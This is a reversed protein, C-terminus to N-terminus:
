RYLKVDAKLQCANTEDTDAFQVVINGDDIVASLKLGGEATDGLADTESFVDSFSVATGNSAVRLTGVRVKDSDAEKISYALELGVYTSASFSLGTIDAASSTDEDLTINHFYREEVTSGSVGRLVAPTNLELSTSMDVSLSTGSLSSVGALVGTDSITVGSGQLLKGSTSDFRPLENDVSSAPGVVDGGPIADIAADLKEIAELVSDTASVPGVFDGGTLVTDRVRAETFYLSDGEAIDDTDLVVAGTQGNVSAVPASPVPAAVWEGDDYTLVRGDAADSVDVDDLNGLDLVVAGTQGNVSDVQDSHDWKEWVTGNNVVSDGIDFSIDGAGFDVTGAATVRYLNGAAGVDTNLLEPSNDSADWTGSYVIPDPLAAITDDVYKKTAADQEASPDVVNTLKRTNLSVDTGSWDLKVTSSTQLRQSILDVRGTFAGPALVAESFMTVSRVAQWQKGEAGLSVTNDDAPVINANVATSELNSLAKNAGASAVIDAALEDIAEQVNEADLESEENDYGVNEADIYPAQATWEGSEYVLFNGNSPEAPKEIYDDLDSADAKLALADFVADQSPAVNTVGDTISDAVAATRARTETFYLSNGEAIDDTDLSVAGTQGNVSTVPAGPIGEIMEVVEDIADKVNEAELESDTNDYSIASSAHANTAASKHEDIDDQANDAADQATSAASAAAQANGDVKQLGSLITDSASVTGAGATYGTLVKGIVAGNSLTVVGSASITAEGSPTVAASEDNDDGILIQGELLTKGTLEVNVDGAVIAQWSGSSYIKIVNDASNYYMEGNEASGPDSARVPLKIPHGGLFVVKNGFKLENAM